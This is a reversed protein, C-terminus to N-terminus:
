IGNMVETGKVMQDIIPPLMGSEVLEKNESLCLYKTSATLLVVMM